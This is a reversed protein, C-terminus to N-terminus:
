EGDMKAGCNPCYSWEKQWEFVFTPGDEYVDAVGYDCVSCHFYRSAGTDYGHQVPAVDAAPFAKAENAVGEIVLDMPMKTHLGEAEKRIHAVFAEREIYEAM